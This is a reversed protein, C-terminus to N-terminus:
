MSKIPLSLKPKPIESIDEMEDDQDVLKISNSSGFTSSSKQFPTREYTTARKTITSNSPKGFLSQQHQAFSTSRTTRNPIDTCVRDVEMPEHRMHNRIDNKIESTKLKDQIRNSSRSNSTKMRKCNERQYKYNRQEEFMTFVEPDESYINPLQIKLRRRLRTGEEDPLHKFKLIFYNEHGNISEYKFVGNEKANDTIYKNIAAVAERNFQIQMYVHKSSLAKHETVKMRLIMKYDISLGNRGTNIFLCINESTIRIHTRSLFRYTGVYLYDVDYKVSENVDNDEVNSLNAKSTSSRGGISTNEKSYFSSTPIQCNSVNSMRTPSRRICHEISPFEESDSDIVEIEQSKSCYECSEKSLQIVSKCKACRKVNSSYGATTNGLQSNPRLPQSRTNRHLSDKQNRVTRSSPRGLSTTPVKDTNSGQFFSTLASVGKRVNTLLIAQYSSVAEQDLQSSRNNKSQFFKYGKKSNSLNVDVKGEINRLNIRESSMTHRDFLLHNILKNLEMKSHDLDAPAPAHNHSLCM